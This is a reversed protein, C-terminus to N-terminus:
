DNPFSCTVITGGEPGKGIELSAGIIDARHDMIQLGMGRGRRDFKEPFDLGDNEISLVTKDKKCVFEVQINKTQGHKVANTM